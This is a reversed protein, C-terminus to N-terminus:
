HNEELSSKIKQVVTTLSEKIERACRQYAEINKGFPDPIEMRILKEQLVELERQEDQTENEMHQEIQRLEEELSRMQWSLEQYRKRLEELKPGEHDLFRRRKEELLKQLRKAERWVDESERVGAAFERLTFVKDKVESAIKLVEEKQALTMTLILDAEMIEDKKLQRAKHLSLDIGESRMVSIAQQSASEGSIAGTGASLVKIQAAAEGLDEALMKRLLAEAM